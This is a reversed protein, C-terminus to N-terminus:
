TCHQGEMCRWGYNEGGGSTDSQFNVEEWAGQGVDAIYLDGTVRDFSWRWPNRLGKAWIEDRPPLDVFPNDPPIIYPEGGNVDIRLMKGLLTTDSQARNGPDNASGGDGMGIYLYGDPGFAIMGGKHNSQGAPQTIQLITLRSAADASDPNATVSYRAIVTNGSNNNYHVYFYGNNSYDPHFCLGLLGRENGSGIVISDINLFTDIEGSAVHLIKILATWQEVIFIRDYDALPATVYLPRSLGSAIRETTAAEVRFGGLAGLLLMMWIWRMRNM